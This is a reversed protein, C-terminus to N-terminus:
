VEEQLRGILMVMKMKAVLQPLENDQDASTENLMHILQKNLIASISFTNRKLIVMVQFLLMVLIRFTQM